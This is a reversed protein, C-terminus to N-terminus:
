TDIDEHMMAQEPRKEICLDEAIKSASSFPSLQRYGASYM